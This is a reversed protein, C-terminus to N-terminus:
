GAGVTQKIGAEDLILVDALPRSAGCAPCPFPFDMNFMALFQSVYTPHLVTECCPTLYECTEDDDNDPYDPGDGGSALWRDVDDTERSM